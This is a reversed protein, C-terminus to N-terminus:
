AATPLLVHVYLTVHKRHVMAKYDRVRALCGGQLCDVCLLSFGAENDQPLPSIGHFMGGQYLIDHPHANHRGLRLAEAQRRGM